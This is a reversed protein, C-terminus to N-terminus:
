SAKAQNKIESLAENFGGSTLSSGSVTSLHISNINKGTVQKKYNSIFEDQFQRAESGSSQTTVTSDSVVSDKLTVSVHVKELGGPSDYRGDAQYTGDKYAQTSTTTDATPTNSATQSSATTNSTKVTDDTDKKALKTAAVIAVIVILVALAAVIKKTNNPKDSEM